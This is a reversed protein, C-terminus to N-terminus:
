RVWLTYAVLGVAILAVAIAGAQVHFDASTGLSGITFAASAQPAVAGTGQDPPMAGAPSGGFRISNSIAM